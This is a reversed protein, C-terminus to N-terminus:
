GMAKKNELYFGCYQFNCIFLPLSYTRGFFLSLLHARQLGELTFAQGSLTGHLFFGCCLIKFLFVNIHTKMIKWNSISDKKIKVFRIGELPLSYCASASIEAPENKWVVELKSSISEKLLIKWYQDTLEVSSLVHLFHLLAIKQEWCGALGARFIRSSGVKM